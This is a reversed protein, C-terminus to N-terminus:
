KGEVALPNTSGIGLYENLKEDRLSSYWGEPDLFDTAAKVEMKYRNLEDRNLGELKSLPKLEDLYNKYKNTIDQDKLNFDKKVKFIMMPPITSQIDQTTKRVRLDDLTIGFIGELESIVPTNNM